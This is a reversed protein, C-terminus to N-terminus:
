VLKGLARAYSGPTVGVVAKFDRVFHPQDVYGLELALEVLSTRPEAKLRENAEHLRYRQLV